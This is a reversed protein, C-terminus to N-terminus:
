VTREMENLQVLRYLLNCAYGFILGALLGIFARGILSFIGFFILPFYKRKFTCPFCFFRTIDDPSRNCEIVMETMIIPWLGYVAPIVMASGLSLENVAILLPVFALGILFNTLVFFSIFRVTGIRREARCSRVLFSFLSFLLNLLNLPQYPFTLLEWYANQGIFTPVYLIIYLLPYGSFFSCIYLTVSIYLLFKSFIPMNKWWRLFRSGMDENSNVFFM